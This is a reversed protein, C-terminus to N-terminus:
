EINGSTARLHERKRCESQKGDNPKTKWREHMWVWEGPNARIVSELRATCASTVRLVEADRDAPSTCLPIQKLELFYGDTPKRGLRRSWGVLLPAGSRLALEAAARPTFAPRGFFPVFVGQVKTDQDILVGLARGERLTRLLQRATGPDERWVTTVGGSARLDAVFRDLHADWSRRAIVVPEGGIRALRRAFLEWNGIHGTAVIFGRGQATVERYLQESAPDLVVYRELRDDLRRGAAFEMAARGFHAFAARAIKRQEAQSMDPFAIALHRLALKRQRRALHYSLVGIATGIRLALSLPLRAILGLMARILASRLRRRLRKPWPPSMGLGSLLM